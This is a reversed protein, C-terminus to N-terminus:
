ESHCYILGERSLMRNITDAEGSPLGDWCSGSSVWNPTLLLVALYLHVKRM